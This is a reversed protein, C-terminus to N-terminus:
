FKHFPPSLHIRSNYMAGELDKFADLEQLAEMFGRTFSDESFRVVSQRVMTDSFSINQFDRIAEILGRSTQPSFLLGNVRQRIIERAGGGSYAIVPTGAACSEVASIGFDEEQPFILARARALYAPMETHPKHGLFEINARAKRELKKRLPGEGVVKLPLGLANFAEIVIDPRKYPVLRMALIYYDQRPLSVNFMGLSVPPYLVRAERRYYKAIRRSVFHSNAFFYDVGPLAQIDWMRLYTLFPLALTKAFSPLTSYSLHEQSGDWLFRPPTHCYCIHIADPRTIVGKGFAESSSIVLDYEQLDLQEIAFPMLPAFARHYRVAFPVRQLFSTYVQRNAFERYTARTDYVLTYIPASPFLECLAALVREAGGSQNLYDHVLAVKM